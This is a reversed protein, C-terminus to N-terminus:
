EDDGGGGSYEGDDNFRAKSADNKRSLAQLEENNEM